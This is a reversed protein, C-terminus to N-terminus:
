RLFNGVHFRTIIENKLPLQVLTAATHYIVTSVPIGQAFTCLYILLFTIKSLENYYKKFM